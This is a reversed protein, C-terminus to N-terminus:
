SPTVYIEKVDCEDIRGSSGDDIGSFAVKFETAASETDLQAGIGRCDVYAKYMQHASELPEMCGYGCCHSTVVLTYDCMDPTMRRQKDFVALSALMSWYANQTRSVDRPQFMTPAVILHTTPRIQLCLASGVPLYHRGFGNVLGHEAISDQVITQLGPFMERSCM